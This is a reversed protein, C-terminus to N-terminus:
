RTAKPPTCPANGRGRRRAPPPAPRRSRNFAWPWCRFTSRPRGGRTSCAGPACSSPRTWPPNRYLFLTFLRYLTGVTDIRLRPGISDNGRSSANPLGQATYSTFALGFSSTMALYIPRNLGDHLLDFWPGDPHTIRTRNANADYVYALARTVGGMNTSSSVMRGFGDYASTIGEGSQSDFRAATQLNRLDYAYFVDREHIAELGARDPV